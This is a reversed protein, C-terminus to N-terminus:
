GFMVGLYTAVGKGGKFGLWLPLIHDIFASLGFLLSIETPQDSLFVYYLSVACTGKIIDGALTFLAAKIAQAFFM